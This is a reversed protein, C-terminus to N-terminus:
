TYDQSYGYVTIQDTDQHQQLMLRDRMMQVLSDGDRRSLQAMEPNDSDMYGRGAAYDVIAYQYRDPFVPEDTSASLDTAIKLYQVSISDSSVPYGNLTTGLTLYAATPSGTITLDSYAERVTREDVFNIVQGTTTNTVNLITGVDSITLPLTGTTSTQLFPWDDMECIELYSQNIWRTARVAGAGGDNLYDFGRAYLETLLENLTVKRVGLVTLGAM